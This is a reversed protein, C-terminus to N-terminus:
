QLTIQILWSLCPMKGLHGFISTSDIILLQTALLNEKMNCTTLIYVTSIHMYNYLSTYPFLLSAFSFGNVLSNKHPTHPIDEGHTDHTLMCLYLQENVWTNCAFGDNCNTSLHWCVEASLLPIVVYLCILEWAHSDAFSIEVLNGDLGTCGSECLANRM